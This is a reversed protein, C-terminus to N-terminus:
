LQWFHKLTQVMKGTFTLFKVPFTGPAGTPFM